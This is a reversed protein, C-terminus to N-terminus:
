VGLLFAETVVVESRNPSSLNETIDDNCKELDLPWHAPDTAPVSRWCMEDITVGLLRWGIKVISRQDM